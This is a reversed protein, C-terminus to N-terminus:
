HLYSKKFLAGKLNSKLLGISPIKVLDNDDINTDIIALTTIVRSKTKQFQSKEFNNIINIKTNTELQLINSMFVCRFCQLM